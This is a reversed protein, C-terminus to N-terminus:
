NWASTDGSEFGDDFVAGPIAEFVGIDSTATGDLDGDLPRAVGRQDVPPFGTPEGADVAPSGLSIAHTPSSGGHHGLPALQPDTNILDNSAPQLGCTNAGELNHGFTVVAGDCNGTTHGTVITGRLSTAGPDGVSIGFSGNAAVTTYALDLTAGPLNDIGPGGGADNGSITTNLIELQGGNSVGGATDGMNNVIAVRDMVATGQNSFGGFTSPTGDGNDHVWCDELTLVGQNAIGGDGGNRIEFGRIAVTAAPAVSVVVGVGGGDIITGTPLEGVLALDVGLVLQEGYTGRAVDIEDGAVARSVAESITLCPTMTTLCDNGDNGGPAVFWTWADDNIITGTGAPDAITANVPTSLDVSFIEDTEPELDGVVAVQVIQSVSFPPFVATGSAPLYDVGSTASGSATAYNVRVEAASGFSLSITFSTNITGVDGELVSDDSISIAPMPGAAIEFNRVLDDGGTGDGNGDLVHGAWDIISTTGCVLLRYAGAPLDVGDNVGLWTESPEGSLYQWVEVAIPTDNGAIGGACDITDFGDGGDDFLVYNAPNTVDDPDSDGPPDQVPESFRVLLESIDVDIVEGETIVGDATEEWSGIEVVRPPTMDAGSVVISFDDGFVFYPQNFTGDTEVVEFSTFGATDIFGFFKHIHTLNSDPFGPVTTSGGGHTIILDVQSGIQGVLWGGVGLLANTSSATGTFGDHIRDSPLSATPDGHPMSYFAYYGSRQSGDGTSVNNAAFNSAWTVTQSLVTPTTAPERSAAWTVDNEFGEVFTSLGLEAAKALYAQEVWCVWQTPGPGLECGDVTISVTATNSTATGDVFYYTFADIGVFGPDSTYDFSGDGYFILLGHGAPDVLTAVATPPPPPEGGGDHDNEMVGPAEIQLLFGSPANYFDDAAFPTLAAASGAVCIVLIVMAASWSVSTSGTRNM